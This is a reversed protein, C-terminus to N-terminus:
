KTARKELREAVSAPVVSRIPGGASSVERVYRSSLLADSGIGPLFVTPIGDGSEYNMKAQLMEVDFDSASRLGKILCSAQCRAAEATVLGTFSQVTVNSLDATVEDIMEVREEPSFFGTKEPNFGVSVVVHDFVTSATQIIALHGNHLPDFSGPYLAKNM